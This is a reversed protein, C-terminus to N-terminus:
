LTIARFAIREHSTGSRLWIQTDAISFTQAAAAWSLILRTYGASIMLNEELEGVADFRGAFSQQPSAALAIKPSPSTQM